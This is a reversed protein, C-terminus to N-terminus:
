HNVEDDSNKEEYDFVSLDPDFLPTKRMQASMDKINSHRGM